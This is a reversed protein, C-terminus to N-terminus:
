PNVPSNRAVPSTKNSWSCNRARQPKSLELNLIGRCDPQKCGAPPRTEPNEILRPEAQFGPAFLVRPAGHKDQLGARPAVNLATQCGKEENGSLKDFFRRDEPTGRARQHPRSQGPRRTNAPRMPAPVDPTLDDFEIVPQLIHQLGILDAPGRSGHPGPASAKRIEGVRREFERVARATFAGISLGYAGATAASKARLIMGM